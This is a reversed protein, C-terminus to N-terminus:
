SLDIDYDYLIAYLRDRTEIVLSYEADTYERSPYKIIDRLYGDLDQLARRYQAAKTADYFEEKDDPLNFTLTAKM